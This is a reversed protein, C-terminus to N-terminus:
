SKHKSKRSGNANVLQGKGCDETFQTCCELCEVSCLCCETDANNLGHYRDNRQFVRCCCYFFIFIWYIAVVTALGWMKIENDDNASSPGAPTPNASQEMPPSKVAILYKLEDFYWVKFILNRTVYNLSKRFLPKSINQINQNGRLFVVYSGWTCVGLRVLLAVFTWCAYLSFVIIM